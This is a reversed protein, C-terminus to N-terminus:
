GIIYAFTRTKGGVVPATATNIAFHFAVNRVAASATFSTASADAGASMVVAASTRQRSGVSGDALTIIQEYGAPATTSRDGRDLGVAAIVLADPSQASFTTAPVTVTTDDTSDTAQGHTGVVASGTCSLMMGNARDGVSASFSFTYSAPELASAWRAYVVMHASNTGSSYTEQTGLQTWGAPTTVTLAAAGRGTVIAYLRDGSGVLSPVPIVVDASTGTGTFTTFARLALPETGGSPTLLLHYTESAASNSTSFSTASARASALAKYAGAGETASTTTGGSDPNGAMTYGGPETTTTSGRGVGVFAVAMGTTTPTYLEAVAHSSGSANILYRYALIPRATAVGSYSHMIAVAERSTTWTQTYDAPESSAIRYLLRSAATEHLVTWGALAAWGGAGATVSRVFLVLLDGNSHAPVAITLTTDASTVAVTTAAGFAIAM